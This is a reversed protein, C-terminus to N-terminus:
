VTTESGPSMARRRLSRRRAAEAPRRGLGLGRELGPGAAEAGDELRQPQSSAGRGRHLVQELLLALELPPEWNPQAAILLTSSTVGM